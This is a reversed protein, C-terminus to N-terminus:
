PAVGICPPSWSPEIIDASSVGFVMAASDTIGRFFVRPVLPVLSFNQVSVQMINGGVDGSASTSVDAPDATSSPAPPQYYNIKIKALGSSGNLLGLSNNQVLGKVTDTLCASGVMDSATLTIGTRVAIRVARQLTAQAFIAWAANMLVFVMSLLPILILSFEILYQGKRRSRAASQIKSAGM